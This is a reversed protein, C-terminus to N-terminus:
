TPLASLVTNAGGIRDVAKADIAVLRRLDGLRDRVQRTWRGGRPRRRLCRGPTPADFGAGAALRRDRRDERRRDTFVAFSTAAPSRRARARGLSRPRRARAHDGPQGAAPRSRRENRSRPRPPTTRDRRLHCPGRAAAWRAADHTTALRAPLAREITDELQQVLAAFADVDGMARGNPDVVVFARAPPAAQVASRDPARRAEDLALLIVAITEAAPVKRITEHRAVVRAIHLTQALVLFLAFLLGTAWLGNRAAAVLWWPGPSDGVIIALGIFVLVTLAFAPVRPAPREDAQAVAVDNRHDLGPGRRLRRRRCGGLAARRADQDLDNTRGSRVRGRDARDPRASAPLAGRVMEALSGRARPPSRPTRPLPRRRPGVVGGLRPDVFACGRRDRCDGRLDRPAPAHLDGYGVTAARRLHVAAVSRHGGSGLGSRQAVGRDPRPVGGVPRCRVGRRRRGATARVADARSRAGCRLDHGEVARAAHVALEPDLDAPQGTAKALDWSHTFTDITALGMFGAGQYEGFPLKVTKELAGPAGFAALAKSSGDQYSAVFDGSAFDPREDGAPAQGAETSAAFWYSGAVIHNILARVDWTACPTPQDLQEASVGALVQKAVGVAREFTETSM